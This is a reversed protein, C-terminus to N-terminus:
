GKSYMVIAIIFSIILIVFPFNEMVFPILTFQAAETVLMPDAAMETYVNGLIANIIAFFGLLFAFFIYFAPYTNIMFAGILTIVALGILTLGFLQDSIKPLRTVYNTVMNQYETDILNEAQVNDDYEKFVKYAILSTVALLILIYAMYHLDLITGKKKKKFAYM